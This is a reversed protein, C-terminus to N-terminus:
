GHRSAGGSQVLDVEWEQLERKWFRAPAQWFEEFVQGGSSKSKAASSSASSTSGGQFKKVFESFKQQLEPPAFPHAHQPEPHSPWQRKGLFRIMPKHVNALRLSPHM